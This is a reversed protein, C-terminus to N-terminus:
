ASHAQDANRAGVAFLRARRIAQAHRIEASRLASIHSDEAGPGSPPLPPAAEALGTSHQAPFFQSRVGVLQAGNYAPLPTPGYETLGLELLRVRPLDGGRSARPVRTPDRRVIRGTFSHGTFDSDKIGQLIADGNRTYHTSTMLGHGDVRIAAPHGVPISFQESPTDYLTKAHNFFVGVDRLGTRSRSLHDLRRNFAAPDLDEIYHGSADNIEAPEGFVAAYADVIRGTADQGCTECTVRGSRIALDDLTTARTIFEPTPLDNPNPAV